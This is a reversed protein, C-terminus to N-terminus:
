CKKQKRLLTDITEVSGANIKDIATKITAVVEDPTKKILKKKTKEGLLQPVSDLIDYSLLKRKRIELWLKEFEGEIDIRKIFM